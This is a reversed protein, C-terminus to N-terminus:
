ASERPLRTGRPVLRGLLTALQRQSRELRSIARTNEKVVTLLAELRQADGV